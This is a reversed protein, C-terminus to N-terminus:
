VFTRSTGVNKSTQSVGQVFDARNQLIGEWKQGHENGVCSCNIRRKGAMKESKVRVLVNDLGWPFNVRLMYSRIESTQRSRVPRDVIAPLLDYDSLFFVTEGPQFIGPNGSKEKDM